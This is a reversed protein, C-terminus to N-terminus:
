FRDVILDHITEALERAIEEIADQKRAENSQINSVVRYEEVEEMSSVSWIIEGTDSRQLTLGMSVEARYELALGSADYSVSSITFNQISGHLISDARKEQVVPLRSDLNFERVLAKTFTNEIGAELTQNTMTPIAITRVDQPLSTKTGELSYGCGLLCPFFLCGAVAVMTQRNV